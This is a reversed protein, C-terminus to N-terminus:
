LRDDIEYKSWDGKIDFMISNSDNKFKQVDLDLLENQATDLIIGKM